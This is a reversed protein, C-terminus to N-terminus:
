FFFFFFSARRCDNDTFEQEEAAGYFAMWHSAAPRVPAIKLCLLWWASEPRTVLGQRLFVVCVACVAENGKAEGVKSQRVSLTTYHTGMKLHLFSSLLGALLDSALEQCKRHRGWKRLANARLESSIGKENSGELNYNGGKTMLTRMM